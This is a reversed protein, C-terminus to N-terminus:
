SNKESRPRPLLPLGIRCWEDGPRLQPSPFIYRSSAHAQRLQRLIDLPYENLFVLHDGHKEKTLHSPNLWEGRELDIHTWEATVIELPRKATALILKLAM